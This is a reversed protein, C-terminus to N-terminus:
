LSLRDPTATQWDCRLTTGIRPRTPLWAPQGWKLTETLAGVEARDAVNLVIGRLQAFRHRASESWLAIATAIDNPLPPM